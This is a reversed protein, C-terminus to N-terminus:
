GSKFFAASSKCFDSAIAANPNRSMSLSAFSIGSHTSIGLSPDPARNVNKIVILLNKFM